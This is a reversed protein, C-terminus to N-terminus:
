FIFLFIAPVKATSLILHKRRLFLQLKQKIRQLLGALVTFYKGKKLLFIFTRALFIKM